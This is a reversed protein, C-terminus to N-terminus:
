QEQKRAISLAFIPTVSAVWSNDWSHTKYMHQGTTRDCVKNKIWSNRFAIVSEFSFFSQFGYLGWLMSSLENLTARNCNEPATHVEWTQPSYTVMLLFAPFYDSCSNPLCLYFKEPDSNYLQGEMHSWREYAVVEHAVVERLRGGWTRGGRTLSWRM